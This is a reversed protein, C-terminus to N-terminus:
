RCVYKRSLTTLSLSVDYKKMVKNGVTIREIYVLSLIETPTYRPFYLLFIENTFTVTIYWRIKVMQIQTQIQFDELLSEKIL